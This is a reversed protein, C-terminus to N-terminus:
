HRPESSALRDLVRQVDDPGYPKMIRPATRLHEPLGRGDAYGTVFAFPIKKEALREALPASTSSGLNVDVLAVEFTEREALALAQELTGAPGVVYHGESELDSKLQIAILPEDEVVLVRQGKTSGNPVPERGHASIGAGVSRSRESVSGTLDDIPFEITYVFGDEHFACDVNAADEAVAGELVTLGFGREIPETVTPGGRERWVFRVKHGAGDMSGRMWSVMVKGTPVSLAGHKVANTALENLVLVFFRAIGPGVQVPGGDIEFNGGTPTSRFAALAAPVLDALDAGQWDRQRLLGHAASM